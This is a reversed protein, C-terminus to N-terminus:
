RYLSLLDALARDMDLPSNALTKASDFRSPPNHSLQSLAAQAWVMPSEDLSLRQSCSGSLLPDDPIGKSILLRLGALQAEVVAIGFGEMPQEPRPLIFWDCCTMIEPIDNRWGLFRTAENLGLESARSKLADGESGSGVFVGVTRPELRRLECLVDLAFKPNKEPVLRGAFLLILADQPLNFDRRFQYRDAKAALFPQPDIGYYHVLDRGERRQRGALFTDLTHDSIGVIKDALAFCTRRMAERLLVQKVAGRVPVAEDPNHIHLITRSRGAMRSALLYPASMIDAHVHVVDYDGQRCESYFRRFFASKRALSHTSRVIRSSLEGYQDELAGREPLQVHFHWDTAIRSDLAHRHMRGLWTEIANTHMREVCHLVRPPTNKLNM